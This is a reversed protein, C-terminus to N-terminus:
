SKTKAIPPFYLITGPILNRFDDLGNAEAVDLYYRTDGYIRYTMLPLTDGEKVVREHTLDPSNKGEQANRTEDSISKQIKVSIEVRLPSGDEGFLTYKTDVLTARGKFVLTGWSVGVYNPEHIDGDFDLLVAQLKKIESEIGGKIHQDSEFVAGTDDLLITFALVEPQHYRYKLNTGSAGLPTDTSYTVEQNLSIDQPNLPVAYTGKESSFKEDKYATLILKKAKAAM